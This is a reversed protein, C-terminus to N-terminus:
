KMANYLYWMSFISWVFSIGMDDQHLLSSKEKWCFYNMSETFTTFFYMSIAFLFYFIHTIRNGLSKQTDKATKFLYVFSNEFVFIQIEKKFMSSCFCFLLYSIGQSIIMRLIYLLIEVSTVIGNNIKERKKEEKRKKM